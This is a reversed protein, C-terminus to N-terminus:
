LHIALLQPLSIWKYNQGLREYTSGDNCYGEKGTKCTWGCEKMVSTRVMIQLTDINKFVPPIGSIIQPPTGLHSPLPGLHLLKCISFDAGSSELINVHEKVFSPFIINDDDLHVLYKIDNDILNSMIYQRVGAGYSNTNSPLETYKVNKWKKDNLYNLFAESNNSPGDHGIYHVISDSDYNQWQVSRICQDLVEISRNYTPTIIGIKPIM